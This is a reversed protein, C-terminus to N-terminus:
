FFESFKGLKEILSLNPRFKPCVGSKHISLQRPEGSHKAHEYLNESCTGWENQPFSSHRCLSCTPSIKYGIERLVTLKNKDM